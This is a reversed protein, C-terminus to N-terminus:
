FDRRPEVWPEFLLSWRALQKRAWGRGSDSLRGRKGVVRERASVGLPHKLVWDYPCDRVAAELEELSHLLRAWPLEVGFHKELQHSFRKDNVESVVQPSPFEQGPALQLVRPTVGWAVLREYIPGGLDGPDLCNASRAEPLLRLVHRWRRAVSSPLTRGALEYEFDLNALAYLETM